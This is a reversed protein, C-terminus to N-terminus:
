TPVVLSLVSASLTTSLFISTVLANAVETHKNSASFNHHRIVVELVDRVKGSLAKFCLGTRVVMNILVQVRITSLIEGM